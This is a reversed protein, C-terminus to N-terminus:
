RPLLAQQIIYADIDMNGRRENCVRHALRLNSMRNDGGKSRAKVHDISIRMPHGKRKHTMKMGCLHCILGDRKRLRAYTITKFRIRKM